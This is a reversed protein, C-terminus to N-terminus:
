LPGSHMFHVAPHIRLEKLPVHDSNYSISTRLRWPVGGLGGEGGARTQVSFPYLYM